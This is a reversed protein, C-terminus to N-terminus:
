RGDSGSNTASYGKKWSVETSQIKREGWGECRGDERSGPDTPGSEVACGVECGNVGSKDVKETKRVGGREDDSIIGCKERRRDDSAVM